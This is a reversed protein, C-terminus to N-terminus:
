FNLPIIQYYFFKRCMMKSNHTVYFVDDLSQVDIEVFDGDVAGNLHERSVFTDEDYKTDVFGNGKKNIHIYGTLLSSCNETLIFKDKRTRHVKGSSVLESIEKHLLKYDDISTYGLLDNIEIMTLAKNNESLLKIISEKMLM